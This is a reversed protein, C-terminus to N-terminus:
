AERHAEFDSNEQQARDRAQAGNKQAHANRELRSSASSSSRSSTFSSNGSSGTGSYPSPLTRDRPVPDSGQDLDWSGTRQGTILQSLKRRM